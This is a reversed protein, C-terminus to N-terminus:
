LNFQKENHYTVDIIATAGSAGVVSQVLCMPSTGTLVTSTLICTQGGIHLASITELLTQMILTTSQGVCISSDASTSGSFPAVVQEFLPSALQTFFYNKLFLTKM